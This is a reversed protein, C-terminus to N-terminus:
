RMRVKSIYLIMLNQEMEVGNKFYVKLGWENLIM